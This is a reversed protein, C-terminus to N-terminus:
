YGLIVQLCRGAQDNAATADNNASGDFHTENFAYVAPSSSINTGIFHQLPLLKNQLGGANWFTLQSICAETSTNNM